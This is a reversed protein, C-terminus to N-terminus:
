KMTESHVKHLCLSIKWEFTNIFFFDVVREPIYFGNLLANLLKIFRPANDLSVSRAPYSNDDIILERM